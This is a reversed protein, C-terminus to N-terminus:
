GEETDPITTKTQYIKDIGPIHPFGRFNAINSFKDRCTALSKNCGPRVSFTDGTQVTYTMPLVLTLRGGEVYSKMEMSLGNNAGSTWTLLGGAFYSNDTIVGNTDFETNSVIGTVAAAGIWGTLDKGCRADGLDADCTPLYLRGIQQTLHQSLSRIEALFHGRKTTVRGLTGSLLLVAGDGTDEYNIARIEVAAYDYLGAAIDEETIASSDLIGDVDMNDVSLDARHRITTPAFGSSAEYTVGGFSIDANHDTFGLVTTDTRTIKWLFALTTEEGAIHSQLAGSISRTM